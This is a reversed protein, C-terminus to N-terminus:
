WASACAGRRWSWCRGGRGCCGIFAWRITLSRPRRMRRAPRGSRRPACCPTNSASSTPPRAWPPPWSPPCATAPPARDRDAHGRDAIAHRRRQARARLRAPRSAATDFHLPAAAPRVGSVAEAGAGAEPAYRAEFVADPGAFHNLETLAAFANALQPGRRPDPGETGPVLFLGVVEAAEQGMKTLLHRVAYALDIFMGSGTGGALSTVIYVRPVTGRVALGTQETAQQLREPDCCESLEVELRRVISPYNDVFALRGLARLGASTQQRPIRYLMKPSLWGTVGQGASVGKLYHSPRYLRALLSENPRLVAPAKGRPAALTTEADTDLHLLRVNPLAAASGFREHIERRLEKLTRLGLHGLGIVLAPLLVGEAQHRAADKRSSFSPTVPPKSTGPTESPEPRPTVGGVTPASPAVELPPHLDSHSPM